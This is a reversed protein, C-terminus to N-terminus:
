DIELKKLFPILYAFEKKKLKNFKPKLDPHDKPLYKSLDKQNIEICFKPM